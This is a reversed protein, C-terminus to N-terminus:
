LRALDSSTLWPNISQAFERTRRSEEVMWGLALPWTRNPMGMPEQNLMAIYPTVAEEALVRPLYRETVDRLTPRAEDGGWWEVIHPRNLWDHLM